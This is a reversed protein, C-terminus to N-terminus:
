AGYEAELKRRRAKAEACAKAKAEAVLDVEEWGYDKLDYEVGQGFLCGVADMIHAAQRVETPTDDDEDYGQPLADLDIEVVKSVWALASVLITKKAM